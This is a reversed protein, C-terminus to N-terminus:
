NICRDSTIVKNQYSDFIINVFINTNKTINITRTQQYLYLNRLDNEEPVINYVGPPLQILVSRDHFVKNYGYPGTVRFRIKGPTTQITLSNTYSTNPSIEYVSTNIIIDPQNPTVDTSPPNQIGPMAEGPNPTELLNVLNLLIDGYEFNLIEATTDLENIIFDLASVYFYDYNTDNIKQLKNGYVDRIKVIYVGYPIQSADFVDLANNNYYLETLCKSTQDYFYYSISFEAYAGQPVITISASHDYYETAKSYMNESLGFSNLAVLFNKNQVIEVQSSNCDFDISEISDSRLNQSTKPNNLFDIRYMFGANYKGYLNSTQMVSSKVDLSVFDGIDFDYNFLGIAYNHKYQATNLDTTLVSGKLLKITNINNNIETVIKIKSGDPLLLYISSNLIDINTDTLDFGQYISMTYFWDSNNLGLFKINLISYTECSISANLVKRDYIVGNIELHIDSKETLNSIYSLLSTNNVIMKYPIFLTDLIPQSITYFGKDVPSDHSSTVQASMPEINLITQQSTIFSCGSANVFEFLYEGPHLKNKFDYYYIQPNPNNLRVSQNGSEDVIINNLRDIRNLISTDYKDFSYALSGIEGTTTNYINIQYPGVGHSINFQFSETTNDYILPPTQSEYEFISVDPFNFSIDEGSYVCGASDTITVSGTNSQFVNLITSFGSGSPVVNRSTGYSVNYPPVGGSWTVTLTGSNDCQEINAITSTIELNSTSSITYAIGTLPIYGGYVYGSYNGAPLSNVVLGRFGTIASDPLNNWIISLPSLLNCETIDEDSGTYNIDIFIRGNTNGPCTVTDIDADIVIDCQAVDGLTVIFNGSGRLGSSDVGVVIGTYTSKTDFDLAIGSNFYLDGVNVSSSAESPVSNIDLTFYESDSGTLHYAVSSIEEDYAYVDTIKFSGANTNTTEPITLGTPSFTIIPAENVDRVIVILYGGYLDTTSTTPRGSVYIDYRNQTEYDLQSFQRLHIEPTLTSNDVITFLDLASRFDGGTYRVDFVAMPDEVNVSWSLDALKISSTDTDIDEDIYVISPSVRIGTPEYIDLVNIIFIGTASYVDTTNGAGILGTITQQTEYDFAKGPALTLVGSNTALDYDISFYNADAGILKVFNGINTDNDILIFDALKLGTSPIIYDEYIGTISPSVIVSVPPDDTLYLSWDTSATFTEGSKSALLTIDYQQKNEFDFVTGAKVYLIGQQTNNDFTTTFVHQDPGAITIINNNTLETDVDTVSFTAVQIRSTTPTNVNITGSNIPSISINTPKEDIDIVTLIFTDIFPTGGVYPDVGTIYGTYLSKTEYDIAIGEKVYITGSSGSISIDFISGDGLSPDFGMQTSGAFEDDALSFTGIEVLGTTVQIPEFEIVTENISLDGSITIGTASVTTTSLAMLHGSPIGTEYTLSPMLYFNHSQDINDGLRDLVIIDHYSGMPLSTDFSYEEYTRDLDNFAYAKNNNKDLLLTRYENPCSAVISIQGSLPFLTSEPTEFYPDYVRQYGTIDNSCWLIQDNILRSLRRYEVNTATQKIGLESTHNDYAYLYSNNTGTNVLSIAVIEGVTVIDTRYNLYSDLHLGSTGSLVFEGSVIQNNNIDLLLPYNGTNTEDYNHDIAFIHYTGTCVSIDSYSSAIYNYVSNGWCSYNVFKPIIAINEPLEASVNSSISTETLTNLNYKIYEGSGIILYDQNSEDLRIIRRINPNSGTFPVGTYIFESSSTDYVFFSDPASSYRSLIYRPSDNTKWGVVESLGTQVPHKIGSLNEQGYTYLYYYDDNSSLPTGSIQPAIIFKYAGFPEFYSSEVNGIGGSFPIYPGIGTAFTDLPEGVFAEVYMNTSEIGCCVRNTVNIPNYWINSFGSISSNSTIALSTDIEIRLYYENSFDISLDDDSSSWSNAYLIHCNENCGENYDIAAAPRLHGLTIRSSTNLNSPINSINNIVYLSALGPQGIRIDIQGTGINSGDNAVLYSRVHNVNGVGNSNFTVSVNGNGLVTTPSITYKSAFDGQISLNMTRYEDTIDDDSVSVYFTTSSGSCLTDLYKNEVVPVEDNIDYLVFDTTGECDPGITATVRWVTSYQDIGHIEYDLNAGIPIYFQYYGNGINRVSIFPPLGNVLFSGSGSAYATGLIRESTTIGQEAITDGGPIEITCYAGNSLIEFDFDKEDQNDSNLIKNYLEKNKNNDISM